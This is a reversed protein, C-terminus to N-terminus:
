LYSSTPIQHPTRNQCGPIFDAHRKQLYIITIV